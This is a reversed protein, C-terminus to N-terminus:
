TSRFFDLQYLLFPEYLTYLIFYNLLGVTLYYIPVSITYQLFFIKYNVRYRSRLTITPTKSIFIRTFQHIYHYIYHWSILLVVKGVAFVM